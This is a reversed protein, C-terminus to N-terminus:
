ALARSAARLTTASRPRRPPRSRPAIGARFVQGRPVVDLVVVAQVATLRHLAGPPPRARRSRHRGVGLDPRSRDACRDRGILCWGIRVRPPNRGPASRSRTDLIPLARFRFRGRRSSFWIPSPATPTSRRSWDWRPRCRSTSRSFPSTGLSRLAAATTSPPTAAVSRTRRPISPFSHRISSPSTPQSTTAAESWRCDNIPDFLDLPDVTTTPFLPEGTDELQAM